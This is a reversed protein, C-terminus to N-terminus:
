KNLGGLGPIGGMRPMGMPPHFGGFKQAWAGIANAPLTGVGAPTLPMNPKQMPENPITTGPLNNQPAPTLPSNPQQPRGTPM